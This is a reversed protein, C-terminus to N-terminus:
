VTIIFLDLLTSKQATVLTQALTGKNPTLLAKNSYFRCSDQSFHKSILVSDIRYCQMSHTLNPALSSLYIFRTHLAVSGGM